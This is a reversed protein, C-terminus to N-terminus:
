DDESYTSEPFLSNHEEERVQQRLLRLTEERHSGTHTRDELAECEDLSECAGEAFFASGLMDVWKMEDAPFGLVESHLNWLSLYDKICRRYVYGRSRRELNELANVYYVYRANQVVILPLASPMPIEEEDQEEKRDENGKASRETAGKQPCPSFVSSGEQQGISGERGTREEKESGDNGQVSDASSTSTWLAATGPLVLSPPPNPPIRPLVALVLREEVASLMNNVQQEGIESKAVTIEVADEKAEMRSPTGTPIPISSARSVAASARAMEQPFFVFADELLEKRQKREQLIIETRQAEKTERIRGEIWNREERMRLLCEEWRGKWEQQEVHLRHLEEEEVVCAVFLSTRTCVMHPAFYSPAYTVAMQYQQRLRSRDLAEQLGCEVMIRRILGERHELAKRAVYERHITEYGRRIKKWEEWESLQIYDRSYGETQAVGDAFLYLPQNVVPPAFSSPVYRLGVGWEQVLANRENSEEVQLMRRERALKEEVYLHARSKSEALFTQLGHLLSEWATKESLELYARVLEEAEIVGREFLSAPLFVLEPAFSSPIYHLGKEWSSKIAIRGREEQGALRLQGQRTFQEKTHLLGREMFEMRLVVKQREVVEDQLIPQRGVWEQFYVLTFHREQYEEAVLHKKMQIALPAYIDNRWFNTYSSTVLLQRHLSEQLPVWEQVLTKEYERLIVQRHVVEQRFAIRLLFQLRENQLLLRIVTEEGRFAIVDMLPRFHTQVLATRERQEMSMLWGDAIDYRMEWLIGCRESWEERALTALAREEAEWVEMAPYISFWLTALWEQAMVSHYLEMCYVAEREMTYLRDSMEAKFLEEQEALHIALLALRQRHARWARQILISCVEEKIIAKKPYFIKEFEKWWERQLTVRGYSEHQWLMAFQNRNDFRRIGFSFCNNRLISFIMEEEERIEWRGKPEEQFELEELLVMVRTADWTVVMKGAPISNEAEELERKVSEMLEKQAAKSAAIFLRDRKPQFADHLFRKTASRGIEDNRYQRWVRCLLRVARQEEDELAKWGKVVADHTQLLANFTVAEENGLDNRAIFEAGEMRERKATKHLERFANWAAQQAIGHGELAWHIWDQFLAPITEVLLLHNYFHEEFTLKTISKQILKNLFGDHEALLSTVCAERAMLVTEAIAARAAAERAVQAVEELRIEERARGEDGQLLRRRDGEEAICAKRGKGEEFVLTEKKHILSRCQNSFTLIEEFDLEARVTLEMREDYELRLQKRIEGGIIDERLSRLFLRYMSTWDKAEYSILAFRDSFETSFIKQAQVDFKQRERTRVANMEDHLQSRYKEFVKLGESLKQQTRKAQIERGIVKHSRRYGLLGRRYRYYARQITEVASVGKPHLEVEHLFRLIQAQQVLRSEFAHREEREKLLRAHHEEAMVITLYGNYYWEVLRSKDLTVHEYFFGQQDIELQHRLDMMKEQRREEEVRQLEMRGMSEEQAIHAMERKVTETLEPVITQTLREVEERLGEERQERWYVLRQLHMCKRQWDRVTKWDEKMLRQIDRREEKESIEILARYQDDDDLLSIYDAVGVVARRSATTTKISPLVLSSVRRAESRGTQCAAARGLPSGIKALHESVTPLIFANGRNRGGEVVVNQKQECYKQIIVRADHVEDTLLTGPDVKIIKQLSSECGTGTRGAISADQTTEGMGEGRRATTGKGPPSSTGLQSSAAGTTTSPLARRESGVSVGGRGRGRPIVTASPIGSGSPPLRPPAKSAPLAPPQLSALLTSKTRALIGEGEGGWKGGGGGMGGALQRGGPDDANHSFGVVPGDAQAPQQRKEMKYLEEREKIRALKMEKERLAKWEKSITQAIPSENYLYYFDKEEEYRIVGRVAREKIKIEEMQQKLVATVYHVVMLEKVLQRDWTETSEVRRRELFEMQHLREIKSEITSLEYIPISTESSELTGPDEHADPSGVSPTPVEEGREAAEEVPRAAASPHRPRHVATSDVSTSKGKKSQQRNSDKFLSPSRQDGRGAQVGLIAEEEKLSWAEDSASRTGQSGGRGRKSEVSQKRENYARLGSRLLQIGRSFRPVEQNPPRSASPIQAPLILPDHGHWQPQRFQLRVRDLMKVCTDQPTHGGWIYSALGHHRSRTPIPPRSLSGRSNSTVTTACSPSFQKSAARRELSGSMGTYQTPVSPVSSISAPAPSRSAGRNSTTSPTHFIGPYKEGNGASAHLPQLTSTETTEGLLASLGSQMSVGSLGRTSEAGSSIRRQPVQFDAIMPTAPKRDNGDSARGTTGLFAGLKREM